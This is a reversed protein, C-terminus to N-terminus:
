PIHKAQKIMIREQRVCIKSRAEPQVGTVLAVNLASVERVQRLPGRATIGEIVHRVFAKAVFPPTREPLM